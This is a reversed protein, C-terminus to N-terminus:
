FSYVFSASFFGASADYETIFEGSYDDYKPAVEFYEYELRIGLNDTAKFGAGGGIFFAGGSDTEAYKESFDPAVLNVSTKADWYAFGPKIFLEFRDGIPLTFVAAAVLSKIDIGLKGSTGAGDDEKIAPSGGDIYAGEVSLWPLFKYGGFVKFGTAGEDFTYGSGFVDKVKTNMQGAGAGVFFGSDAANASTAILLAGCALLAFRPKV